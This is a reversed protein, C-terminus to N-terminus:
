KGASQADVARHRWDAKRLFLLLVILFVLGVAALPVPYRGTRLTKGPPGAPLPIPDILIGYQAAISKIKLLHIVPVDREGMLFIIGREPNRVAPVKKLLGAPLRHGEPGDGLSTLSGGVNIFVAPKRGGLAQDFLALRKQVDATLTSSGEEELLPIGNRRIARRGAEIGTGDLGGQAGAIGGLSAAISRYPLLGREALVREMDLWTMDPQNAGYMSSGESSIIVPHLNSVRAASLVAINLAPFSGSLCVAVRDGPRVGARDLMDVVVAAFAPNTSTRKAVLSGLTTTIDTYEVGILGTDNTDFRRDIPIGMRLKEKKIAEASRQMLEMAANKEGRRPDPQYRRTSELLVMITLAFVALIVLTRTHPTRKRYPSQRAM